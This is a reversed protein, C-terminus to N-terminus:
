AKAGSPQMELANRKEVYDRIQKDMEFTGETPNNRVIAFYLAAGVLSTIVCLIQGMTTTNGFYYQLQEDAERFFEMFYRYIGYFFVFATAISGQKRNPIRNILQLTLFL